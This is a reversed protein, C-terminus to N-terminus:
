VPRPDPLGPPLREVLLAGRVHRVPGAIAGPRGGIQVVQGREAQARRAAEKMGADDISVVVVMPGALPLPPPPGHTHLLAPALYCRPDGARELVGGKCWVEVEPHQEWEAYAQLYRDRMQPQVPGAFSEPDDAPGVRVGVWLRRLHRQLLEHEGAAYAVKVGRPDVGSRRLGTRALVYAALERDAEEDIVAVRPGTPPEVGGEVWGPPLEAGGEDHLELAGGEFAPVLGRLVDLAASCADPEREVRVARGRRLWAWALDIAELPQARREIVRVPPGERVVPRSRALEMVRTQLQGILQERDWAVLELQRALSDSMADAVLTLRESLEPGRARATAAIREAPSM